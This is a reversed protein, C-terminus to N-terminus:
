RTASCMAWCSGRTAPGRPGPPVSTTRNMEEVFITRYLRVEAGFGAVLGVLVALALFRAVVAFSPDFGSVPFWKLLLGILYQGGIIFLLLPVSMTLICLVLASADIYTERFFAVTLAVVVGLM